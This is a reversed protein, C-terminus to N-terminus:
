FRVNFQHHLTCLRFACLELYYTGARHGLLAHLSVGSGSATVEHVWNDPNITDGDFNDEFILQWQATAGSLVLLCLKLTLMLNQM